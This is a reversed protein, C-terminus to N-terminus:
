SRGRRQRKTPRLVAPALRAIYAWTLVMSEAAAQDRVYWTLNGVRVVACRTKVDMWVKGKDAGSARVIIGPGVASAADDDAGAAPQVNDPLAKFVWRNEPDTWAEAFAVAGERDLMSHCFQDRHSPGGATVVVATVIVEPQRDSAKSWESRRNSGCGVAILCGSLDPGIAPEQDDDAGGLPGCALKLYSSRPM